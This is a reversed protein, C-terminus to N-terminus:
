FPINVSIATAASSYTTSIWFGGRGKASSVPSIRKSMNTFATTTSIPTPSSSATLRAETPMGSLLGAVDPLIRAKVLGEGSLDGYEKFDFREGGPKVLPVGIDVVIRSGNSEIEVCSGGIEHTGRHITLNM